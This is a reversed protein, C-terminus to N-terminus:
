STVLDAAIRKWTVASIPERQGAFVDTLIAHCQVREVLCVADIRNIEILKPSQRSNSDFDFIRTKKEKQLAERM